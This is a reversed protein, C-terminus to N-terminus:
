RIPKAGWDPADARDAWLRMDNLGEWNKTAAHGDMLAIVARGNHRLSVFGSNIGPSVAHADYATDWLRGQVETFHPAEVRFFGEPRGLGPAIPQVEARASAFTLLGSPRQAEDIRELHVRGFQRQFTKDFEQQKDSGGVFLVNMGLSPFLSVVYRYDIGMSTYDRDAARIDKLVKVDDYLGRFNYDLYPALRWPYRQAEESLLREGTDDYVPMPGNVLKKPAYGPLIFGKNADAYLTFALMLQQASAMERTQRATGRAGSLAPVLLSILVSIISIVVLLEILTFARRPQLKSSRSARRCPTNIAM